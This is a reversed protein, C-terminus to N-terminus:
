YGALLRTIRMATKAAATDGVKLFTVGINEARRWVVKCKRSVSSGGSFILLFEDPVIESALVAIRAGGQSVDLVACDCITEGGLGLIRATYNLEVRRHKRLDYRM